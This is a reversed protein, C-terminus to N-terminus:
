NRWVGIEGRGREGIAERLGFLLPLLGGHGLPRADASFM